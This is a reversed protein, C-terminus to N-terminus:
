RQNSSKQISGLLKTEDQRRGPFINVGASILNLQQKTVIVYNHSRQHMETIYYDSWTRDKYKPRSKAPDGDKKTWLLEKSYYDMIAFSDTNIDFEYLKRMDDIGIKKGM